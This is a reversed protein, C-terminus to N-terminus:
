RDNLEKRSMWILRPDFAMAALMTIFVVGCFALAATGPHVALTNGTQILAVLVAVVFVDIMSWRGIYETLRYYYLRTERVSEHGKQVSYNLWGLILIKVVPVLVSAVFIILAVPYSGSEWLRIVGGIITNPESKGFLETRMIPYTNAPVYLMVATLLLAWTRQISRSAYDSNLPPPSPLQEKHLWLLYDNSNYVYASLSTLGAFLIFAYFSLGTSVDAMETIKILSVLTGVLFIEAMSWPLLLSLYRHVRLLFVSHFNLRRSAALVIFGLLVMGPLVLTAAGTIVALTTADEDILTMLGGLLDIAHHQGSARFSLFNFPLSLLLFLLASLSLALLIDSENKRTVLLTHGCRPCIARQRHTLAPVNVRNHCQSCTVQVTAPKKMEM